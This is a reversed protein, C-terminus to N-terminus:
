KIKTESAATIHWNDKQQTYAIIVCDDASIGSPLSLDIADNDKVNDITRLTRVVNTHRLKKGSNEGNRVNMETNKQVLAINLLQKKNGTFSYQLTIKGNNNKASITMEQDTVRAVERIIVSNLKTGDSGVLEHAGNVVAQPTYTSGLHMLEAYHQQRLTYTHDSFVDKWGLHNWYDVHYEMVYVNQPNDRHIRALTAEAAPCSSCGESTFLEVVAFGTNHNAPTPQAQCATVSFLLAALTIVQIHARM